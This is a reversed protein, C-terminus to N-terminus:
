DINFLEKWTELKKTEKNNIIKDVIRKVEQKKEIKKGECIDKFPCYNCLWSKEPPPPTNTKLATALQKGRNELWPIINRKPIEFTKIKSMSLYVVSLKKIEERKPYMSYYAQLQLAHHEQPAEPINSTTKLEYMVNNEIGDIFGIVEFDDFAKKVFVENEEFEIYEHFAHGRSLIWLKELDFVQEETLQYFSQRLCKTTLRTTGFRIGERTKGEVLSRGLLKKLIPKPLCKGCALCEKPTKIDGNPCRIKIKM